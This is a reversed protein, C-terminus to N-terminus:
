RVDAPAEQRKRRRLFAPLALASLAALALGSLIRGATWSAPAYRFEVRSEGAPLSVSLLGSRSPAVEAPAGNVLAKWGGTWSESVVLRCPGAARARVEISSATPRTRVADGSTGELFAGASPTPNRYLILSGNRAEEVWGAAPSPGGTVIWRVNLRDLMAPDAAGGVDSLTEMRPTHQPWGSAYDSEIAPPVPYGCGRLLLFGQAVPAATTATLDLVRGQAREPGVARAYWPPTPLLEPALPRVQTAGFAVLEVATFALAAVVAARGKPAFRLVAIAGAAVALMVFAEPARTALYLTGCALACLGALGAGVRARRGTERAAADWGFASLAALSLSAIWVAREPIRFKAYGPLLSLLSHVIFSSGFAALLSLLIAVGFFRTAGRFRETGFHFLALLLPLTGLYLGKEHPLWAEASPTWWYHPAWLALLHLPGFDAFPESLRGLTAADTASRSSWSSVEISPLLQVSALAVGLLVGGATALLSRRLAPADGRRGWLRWSALGASMLALHYVFQPNGGLLVLGVAAGLFSAHLLSPRDIAKLVALLLLPAQCVTIFYPLHGASVRMLVPFSLSWALSALVCSERRLGFHRTLRYMGFGALLLHIAVLAKFGPDPDAALFLWNGPYYFNGQSNGLFPVGAYQYPNWRPLEGDRRFADRAFSAHARYYDQFDWAYLGRSTAAAPAWLVLIPLTIAAAALWRARRTTLNL